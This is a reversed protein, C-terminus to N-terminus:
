LMMVKEKTFMLFVGLPVTVLSVTADGDLLFPTIIGIAAVVLGSFKQKIYYLQETRQIIRRQTERRNYERLWEEYTYVTEIEELRSNYAPLM